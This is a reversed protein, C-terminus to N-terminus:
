RGGRGECPAEYRVVLQIISGLSIRIHHASADASWNKVGKLSGERGARLFKLSIVLEPLYVCENRVM